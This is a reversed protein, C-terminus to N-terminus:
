ENIYKQYFDEDLIKYIPRLSPELIIGLLHRLMMDDEATFEGDFLLADVVKDYYSLLQSRKEQYEAKTLNQIAKHRFLGVQQNFDVAQFLPHYALDEFKVPIGQPLVLDVVYKIPMVQTRDVEGTVKYKLYPVRVILSENRITLIPLGPVYGLPIGSNMVFPNAKLNNLLQEIKITNKEM